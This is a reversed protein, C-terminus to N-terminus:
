YRNDLLLGSVFMNNNIEIHLLTVNYQRPRTLNEILISNNTYKARFRTRMTDPKAKSAINESFDMRVFGALSIIYLYTLTPSFKINM